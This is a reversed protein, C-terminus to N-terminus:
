KKQKTALNKECYGSFARHKIITPSLHGRAFSSQQRNLSNKYLSGITSTPLSSAYHFDVYNSHLPHCISIM